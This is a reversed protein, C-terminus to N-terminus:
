MDIEDPLIGIEDKISDEEVRCARILAGEDLPVATIDQWLQTLRQLRSRPRRGPSSSFRRGAGCRALALPSAFISLLYEISYLSSPSEPSLTEASHKPVPVKPPPVSNKLAQPDVPTSSALRRMPRQKSAPTLM